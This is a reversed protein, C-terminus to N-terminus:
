KRTGQANQQEDERNGQRARSNATFTTEGRRRACLGTFVICVHLHLTYRKSARPGNYRAPFVSTIHVTMHTTGYSFIYFSTSLSHSLFYFFCLGGCRPRRSRRSSPGGHLHRRCRARLRPSESRASSRRRLGIDAATHNARELWTVLHGSIHIDNM